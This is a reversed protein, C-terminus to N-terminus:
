HFGFLPYVYALVSQCVDTFSSVRSAKTVPVYFCTEVCPMCIKLFIVVQGNLNCFSIHMYSQELVAM